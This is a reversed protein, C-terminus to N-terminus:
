QTKVYNEHQQNNLQQTIPMEVADAKPDRRGYWSVGTTNEVSASKASKAKTRSDTSAGSQPARSTTASGTGPKMRLTSDSQTSMQAKPAAAKNTQSYTQGYAPLAILTVICCLRALM